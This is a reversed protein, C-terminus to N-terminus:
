GPGIVPLDRLLPELEGRSVVNDFRATIRGDAGIVFVWPEKLDGDRLVWDAAAKNLTNGQFDRWIEVHIFSARDGYTRGLEEVMDTVPGCFRSVCYVPTAFVVVAPRKADLVQAITTRHLDPDPVEGDTGARSDIAAKPVDTAGVTHNETRLAPDGVAPVAHKELVQFAGTGRRDKGGVRATVEMQWFGARDFARQASYLGRESGEVLRPEAPAPSPLEAGAVPLFSAEVPSGSPEPRAGPQGTGLYSFRMSVTGYGVLRQDNTLVGAIVRTPPGVALDYSAVQVVLDQQSASPDPSPRADDDSSSCAAALLAVALLLVARARVPM